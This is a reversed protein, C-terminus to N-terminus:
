IAAPTLALRHAKAKWALAGNELFEPDRKTLFSVRFVRVIPHTASTASVGLGRSVDELAARGVSANSTLGPWLFNPELLLQPSWPCCQPLRCVESATPVLSLM